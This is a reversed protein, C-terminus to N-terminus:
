GSKLDREVYSYGLGLVGMEHVKLLPVDFVYSADMMIYAGAGGGGGGRM